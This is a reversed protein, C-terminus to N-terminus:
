QLSVEQKFPIIVKWILLKITIDSSSKCNFKWKIKINLKCNYPLVFSNLKYVAMQTLIVAFLDAAQMFIIKILQPSILMTKARLKLM